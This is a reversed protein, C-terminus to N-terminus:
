RPRFLARLNKSYTPIPSEKTNSRYENPRIPPERHNSDRLQLDCQFLIPICWLYPTGWKTRTHPLLRPKTTKTQPRPVMTALEIGSAALTRTTGAGM